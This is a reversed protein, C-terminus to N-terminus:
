QFVVPRSLGPNQTGMGTGRVNITPTTGFSPERFATKRPEGFITGTTTTTGGGIGSTFGSMLLAVGAILVGNFFDQLAGSKGIFKKGIIGAIIQPLGNLGFNTPIFRAILGGVVGSLAAGLSVVLLNGSEIKFLSSTSMAFGNQTNEPEAFTGRQVPNHMKKIEGMLKETLLDVHQLQTSM